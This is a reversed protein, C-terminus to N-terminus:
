TKPPHSQWLIQTIKWTGDFNGLFMYDISRSAKLKALQEYTMPSAVYPSSAAMAATWRIM